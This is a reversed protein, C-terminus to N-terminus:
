GERGRACGATVRRGEREGAHRRRALAKGASGRRWACSTAERRWRSRGATLITGNSIYVIDQEPSSSSSRACPGTTTLTPTGSLLSPLLLLLLLLRILRRRLPSRSTTGTGRSILVSRPPVRWIRSSLLHHLYQRRFGTSSSLLPVEFSKNM